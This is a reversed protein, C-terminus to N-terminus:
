TRTSEREVIEFGVDITRELVDQGAFRAMLLQAALEGIRAGDIHVTTLSPALHASFDAGGFGCVAVDDPVRWGQVRAETLVGEALGDSSCCVAQLDPHNKLLEACARRGSAVSSPAPVVATPVERGMAARFAEARMVARRDDGIALGVRTWGKALFYEAVARGVQRHSFGVVMDVPNEVSEWTEVVPIDSQRLRQAAPSDGLMGAVVIGDVRRGMMADLLAAERARDYGTQGLILQYGERDLAATLAQITPLFQPVSVIPMLAAVTRSRRTKLGGALLNPVYGVEAAVAQVRAATAQSVRGPNSLARSATILSVGAERAVDHLTISKPKM